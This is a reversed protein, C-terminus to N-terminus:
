ALLVYSRYSSNGKGSGMIERISRQRNFLRYEAGVPVSSSSQETSRETRSDVGGEHNDVGHSDNEM